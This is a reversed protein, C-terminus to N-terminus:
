AAPIPAYMKGPKERASPFRLLQKQDDQSKIEMLGIQV